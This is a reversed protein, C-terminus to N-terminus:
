VKRTETFIVYHLRVDSSESTPIMLSFSFLGNLKQTQIIEGLITKELVKYKGVFTM